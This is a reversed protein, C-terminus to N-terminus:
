EFEVWDGKICTTEEGKGTNVCFFEIRIYGNTDFTINTRFKVEGIKKKPINNLKLAVLSRCSNLSSTEGYLFECEIESIDDNNTWADRSITCPLITGKEILIKLGVNGKEKLYAKFGINYKSIPRSHNEIAKIIPINSIDNQNVSVNSFLNQINPNLKELNNIYQLRVMSNPLSLMELYFDTSRMLLVNKDINDISLTEFRDCAESSKLLESFYSMYLKSIKPDDVVIINEYNRTEAYNTWNYSGTITYYRDIVCFKNHMMKNSQPFLHLQGGKNILKNFDVGWNAHNIIDDMLVINVEVGKEKCQLITDFLEENTFWAMAIYISEKAKQLYCIIERRIDKFYPQEM